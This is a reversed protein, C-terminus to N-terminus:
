IASHEDRSSQSQICGGSLERIDPRTLLRDVLHDAFAEADGDRWATAVRIAPAGPLVTLRGDDEAHIPLREIELLSEDYALYVAVTEWLVTTNRDFMGPVHLEDPLIPKMKELTTECWEQYDRLVTKVLPSKSQRLASYRSGHLVVSGCTDTPTITVDWGVSFVSRCAPVDVTVNYEAVPRPGGLSGRRVSGFMGVFRARKAIAPEAALGAAINTAPGMGIVTVPELSSMVCDILAAVGDAHVGGRYRDLEIEDAFRSLALPVPHYTRPGIGIPVDDRGGAVLTGAAVRARYTTDATATVVLRLDLEPCGLLMALAWSDDMDSGIDTDLVVPITM